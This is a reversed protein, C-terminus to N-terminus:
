RANRSGSRILGMGDLTSKSWQIAKQVQPSGCLRGGIRSCLYRLNHYATSDSMAETFINRIVLSDEKQALTNYSPFLFFLIIPALLKHM